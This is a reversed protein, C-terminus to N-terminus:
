PLLPRKQLMGSKRWGRLSPAEFTALILKPFESNPASAYLPSFILLSSPSSSVVRRQVSAEALVADKIVTRALHVDSFSQLIEHMENWVSAARLIWHHM